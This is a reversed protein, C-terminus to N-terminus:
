GKTFKVSFQPRLVTEYRDRVEVSMGELHKNLTMDTLLIKDSQIDVKLLDLEAVEDQTRSANEISKKEVRLKEMSELIEQYRANQALSDHFSRQLVRRKQKKEECRNYVEEITM